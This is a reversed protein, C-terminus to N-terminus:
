RRSVAGARDKRDRYRVSLQAGYTPGPRSCVGALVQVSNGGGLCGAKRVDDAASPIPKTVCHAVDCRSGQSSATVETMFTPGAPSSGVVAATYVRNPRRESRRM